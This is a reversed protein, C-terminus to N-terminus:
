MKIILCQGTPLLIPHEPKDSFFEDVAKTAGICGSFGYDDFIIIGEKVMRSYFFTCSDLVSKYIDVDIHALCFSINEIPKATFPFLGKYLHVNECDSLFKSVKEITAEEYGKWVAEPSDKAPDIPPMGSFTDFSHVIKNTTKALLKTTRGQFTGVEVIDGSLRQVHKTLQYLMYCRPKDYESFSNIQKIIDGFEGISLSRIFKNNMRYSLKLRKKILSKLQSLMNIKLLWEM